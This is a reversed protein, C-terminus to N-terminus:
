NHINRTIGEFKSLPLLSDQNHPSTVYPRLRIRARSTFIGHLYIVAQSWATRLQLRPQLSLLLCEVAERVRHIWHEM